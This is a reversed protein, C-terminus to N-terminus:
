KKLESLTLDRIESDDILDAFITSNGDQELASLIAARSTFRDRNAGPESEFILTKINSPNNRYFSQTLLSNILSNNDDALISFRPDLYLAISDSRRNPLRSLTTLTIKAVHDRSELDEINTIHSYDNAAIMIHPLLKGSIKKRTDDNQIKEIELLVEDELNRMQFKTFLGEYIEDNLNTGEPTVVSSLTAEFLDAHGGIWSFADSPDDFDLLSGLLANILIARVNPDSDKIDTAVAELLGTPEPSGEITTRINRISQFTNQIRSRYDEIVPVVPREPLERSEGNRTPAAFQPKSRSPLPHNSNHNGPERKSAVLYAVGILTLAVATTTYRNTIGKMVIAASPIRTM